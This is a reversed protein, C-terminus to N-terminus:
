SVTPASRGAAARKWAEASALKTCSRRSSSICTKCWSPMLREVVATEDNITAVMVSIKSSGSRRHKPPRPLRLPRVRVGGDRTTRPEEATRDM